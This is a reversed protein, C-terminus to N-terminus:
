HKHTKYYFFLGLGFGAAVIAWFLWQMWLVQGSTPEAAMNSIHVEDIFCIADHGIYLETARKITDQPNLVGSIVTVDQEEGDVYIHMGTTLSNTFVVYIWQNLPIVAKTVIENLVGDETTVYARLAGVPVGTVNDSSHGNVALGL